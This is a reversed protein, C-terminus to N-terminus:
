PSGTFVRVFVRIYFDISLSVLPVIYRGYRNATRELTGLAIRLAVEHCHKTRLSVAGYKSWCAEGSKGCLVAM